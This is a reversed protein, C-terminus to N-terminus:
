KLIWHLTYYGTLFRHFLYPFNMESHLIQLALDNGAKWPFIVFIIKNKYIM